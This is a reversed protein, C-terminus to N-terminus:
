RMISNRESVPYHSLKESTWTMRDDILCKVRSQPKITSPRDISVTKTNAPIIRDKILFETALRADKGRHSRYIWGGALGGPVM